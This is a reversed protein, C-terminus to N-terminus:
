SPQQCKCAAPYGFPLFTLLPLWPLGSHLSRCGVAGQPFKCGRQRIYIEGLFTSIKSKIYFRRFKIGQWRISLKQFVVPALCLVDAPWPGKQGPAQGSWTHDGCWYGWGWRCAPGFYLSDAGGLGPPWFRHACPGLHSPHVNFNSFSQPPSGVRTWERLSPLKQTM